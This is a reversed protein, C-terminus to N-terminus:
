GRLLVTIIIGATGLMFTSVIAGGAFILGIWNTTSAGKERTETVQERAGQQQFQTQRLSEIASSLPAVATALAQATTTATAANSVRMAEATQAVQTALATARTEADKSAQQSAAVDVARIADIRKSEAVRLQNSHNEVMRLIERTHRAESERLDDQRQNGSAVLDLVNPTPDKVPENKRDTAPGDSSGIASTGM